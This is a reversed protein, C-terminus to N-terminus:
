EQGVGQLDRTIFESVEDESKKRLHAEIKVLSPLQCVTRCSRM